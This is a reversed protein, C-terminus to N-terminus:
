LKSGTAAVLKNELREIAKKERELAGESKILRSRITTLESKAGNLEQELKTIVNKYGTEQSESRAIAAALQKEIESRAKTETDLSERLEQKEEKIYKIDAELKKVTERLDQTLAEAVTARTQEMRCQKLAQEADSVATKLNKDLRDRNRQQVAVEESFEKLSQKDQEAQRIMEYQRKQLAEVKERLRGIEEILQKIEREQQEEKEQLAFARAEASRMNEAQRNVDVQLSKNERVLTDIKAKANELEATVQAVQELAQQRQQLIDQEFDQYTQKVKRVEQQALEQATHWIIQLAELSRQQIEEPMTASNDELLSLTIAKKSM